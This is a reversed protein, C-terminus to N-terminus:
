KRKKGGQCYKLLNLDALEEEVQTDDAGEGLSLRVEHLLFETFKERARHLTQRASDATVPKGLLASLREALAPSPLDPQEARLRLVTHYAQGTQKEWDALEKWTRALLEQSWSERFALEADPPNSPAAPDQGDIAAAKPRRAQKRYHDDVLHFLATKVYDRFRGRDPDAHRFRRQIFLLAFEQALDEALHPDRVAKLLYRFAAGCYRVMLDQRARAASEGEEHAQRLRSWQTSIRSLREDFEAPNM